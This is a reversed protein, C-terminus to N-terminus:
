WEKYATGDRSTALSASHVDIIGEGGESVNPDDSVVVIWDRQETFPDAPIERLYGARVLDDLSKPLSGRDAAHQDILKRMQLLDDRLVSERARLVSIRHLTIARYSIACCVGIIVTLLAVILRLILRRM